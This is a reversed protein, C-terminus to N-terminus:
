CDDTLVSVFLALLPFIRLSFLCIYIKIRVFVFFVWWPSNYTFDSYPSIFQPTIDIRLMSAKMDDYYLQQFWSQSGDTGSLCTGFGDITQRRGGPLVFLCLCVFSFSSFCNSVICFSLLVCNHIQQQKKTVFHVLLQLVLWQVICSLFFDLLFLCCLSQFIVFIVLLLFFFHGQSVDITITTQQALASSLLLSAFIAYFLVM